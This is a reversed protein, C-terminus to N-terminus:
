ANRRKQRGDPATGLRTLLKVGVDALVNPRVVLDPGHQHRRCLLVGMKTPQGPEM